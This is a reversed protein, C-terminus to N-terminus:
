SKRRSVKVVVADLLNKRASLTTMHNFKVSTECVSEVMMMMMMMMMM